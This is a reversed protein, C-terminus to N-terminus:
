SPFWLFVLVDVGEPSVFGAFNSKRNSFNKDRHENASNSTKAETTKKEAYHNFRFCATEAQFCKGLLFKKLSLTQKFGSGTIKFAFVIKIVIELLSKSVSWCVPSVRMLFRFSGAPIHLMGGCRNLFTELLRGNAVVPQLLRWCKM